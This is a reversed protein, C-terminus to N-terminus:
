ATTFPSCSRKSLKPSRRLAGLLIPVSRLDKAERRLQGCDQGMNCASGGNPYAALYHEVFLKEKITLRQGTESEEEHNRCSVVPKAGSEVDPAKPLETIRRMLTVGLGTLRKGVYEM